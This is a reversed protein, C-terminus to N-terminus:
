FLQLVSLVHLIYVHAMAHIALLYVEIPVPSLILVVLFIVPNLCTAM